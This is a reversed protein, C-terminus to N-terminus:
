QVLWVILVVFGSAIALVMLFLVFLAVGIKFITDIVMNFLSGLFALTAALM